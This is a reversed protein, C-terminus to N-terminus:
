SLTPVSSLPRCLPTQQQVPFEWPRKVATILANVRSTLAAAPCVITAAQVTCVGFRNTVNFGDYVVGAGFDRTPGTLGSDLRIRNQNFEFGYKVTHRKFINQLRAQAEYRERNQDTVRLHFGQRIFGRELSGGRGDVFALFGTPGGFDVNTDIVPLVAGNRVIAFNDTVAVVQSIDTSPHLNNRQRHAGFAFEGIWNPTISSNMRVAYNDGGLEGVALFSDPDAGFGSLAGGLPQVNGNIAVRFDTIKTFDGFTSFTLVHRQNIAYTLKGAYFPTTVKNSAPQRLTQTLYSNERRQPNFAGFFWLKDKKFAGGLDFGADIESFGNPASGTFPLHKTGRVLGKTTFYAFVDGHLDNGGSKTLVNFIGGTTLGYEPGFAGTKIEVEQVFEFPLNAGSGGFSPDTTNVGDLIYSNELGSSGAVSPDRDRGSVDRLGSRSVSPAITYIAQVTRQTIFNSFQETSVNTGSTNSTIDLAASPSSVTVTASTEAPQLQLLVSSTKSLGVDVDRKFRAFGLTAEVTVVYRGPPLNLIRYRGEDDTTASQARILNPSTVVVKVNPVVAENSDIVLGEIVGTTTTQASAFSMWILTLLVLSASTPKKM